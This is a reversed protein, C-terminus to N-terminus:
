TLNRTILRCITVEFSTEFGFQSTMKCTQICWGIFLTLDSYINIFTTLSSSLFSCSTLIYCKLKCQRNIVSSCRIQLRKNIVIYTLWQVRHIHALAHSKWCHPMKILTSEYSGRCGWKLSLCELHHEALLKVTMSYILSLCLSQDSQAYASASRLSQQNCISCQQFDWAMAWNHKSLCLITFSSCCTIELLIANQCTYVWVLM